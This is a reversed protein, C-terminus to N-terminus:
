HEGASYTYLSQQQQLICQDDERKEAYSKLDANQESYGPCNVPNNKGLTANQQQLVLMYQYTCIDQM